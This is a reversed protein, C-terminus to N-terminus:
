LKVSLFVAAPKKRNQPQDCSKFSTAATLIFAFALAPPTSTSAVEKTTIFGFRFYFINTFLQIKFLLRQSRREAPVLLHVSTKFTHKPAHTWYIPCPQLSPFSFRCKVIEHWWSFYYIRRKSLSKSQILLLRLKVNYYNWSCVVRWPKMMQLNHTRETTALHCRCVAIHSINSESCGKVSFKGFGM